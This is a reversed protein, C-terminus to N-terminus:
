AGAQTEQVADATVIVEGHGLAHVLITEDAAALLSHDAVHTAEHGARRLRAAVKPSLNADVLFKV